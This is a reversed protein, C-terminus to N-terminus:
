KIPIDFKKKLNVHIRDTDGFIYEYKFIDLLSTKMKMMPNKSIVLLLM